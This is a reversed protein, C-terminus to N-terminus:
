GDDMSPSGSPTASMSPNLTTNEASDAQFEPEKVDWDDDDSNSAQSQQPIPDKQHRNSCRILVVLGLIFDYTVLSIYICFCVRIGEPGKLV